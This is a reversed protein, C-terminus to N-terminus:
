RPDELEIGAAAVIDDMAIGKGGHKAFWAQGEHFRRRDQETVPEDDAPAAALARAVPDAMVELLHSVADFQGPDLLDLLQHAHDKRVNEDYVQFAIRWALLGIGRQTGSRSMAPFLFRAARTAARDANACDPRLQRRRSASGNHGPDIVASGM